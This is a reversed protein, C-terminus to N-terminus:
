PCKQPGKKLILNTFFHRKKEGKFEIPILPTLFVNEKKKKPVPLSRM